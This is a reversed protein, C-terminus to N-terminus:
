ENNVHARIVEDMPGTALLWSDHSMRMLRAFLPQYSKFPFVYVDPSMEMPLAYQPNLVPLMIDEGMQNELTVVIREFGKEDFGTDEGNLFYRIKGMEQQWTIVFTKPPFHPKRSAKDAHATLGKNACGVATSLYILM